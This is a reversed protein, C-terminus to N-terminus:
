DRDMPRAPVGAVRMRPPVDAVVVAGAAVYSHDGISCGERVIAGIGVHAMEGVSVRGALHVGPGIFAHSAIRGDHDITAATNVIVDDGIVVEVGIIAGACVQAGAGILSGGLSVASPHVLTTPHWGRSLSQAFARARRPNAGLAVIFDFAGDLAPLEDELSGLIAIKGGAVAVSSAEPQVFGIVTRGSASALDAVVRGHDGAGVIILPPALGATRNM